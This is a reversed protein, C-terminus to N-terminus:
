KTYKELLETSTSTETINKTEIYSVINKNIQLARGNKNNTAVVFLFQNDEGILFIKEHNFVLTSDNAIIKVLRPEGGGIVFSIKPFITAGFIFLSALLPIVLQQAVIQLNGYNSIHEIFKLKLQEAPLETNNLFIYITFISSFLWSFLLGENIPQFYSFSQFDFLEIRLKLFSCIATSIYLCIILIDLSFIFFSFYNNYTKDKEKETILIALQSVDTKDIDKKIECKRRLSIIWSNITTLCAIAIIFLFLYSFSYLWFKLIFNAGLSINIPIQLIKEGIFDYNGFLPKFILIQNNLPTTYLGIKMLQSLALDAILLYILIQLHNLFRKKWSKIEFLKDIPIHAYMLWSLFMAVTLSLLPYIGAIIYRTNILDFSVIGFRSLYANICIFGFFYLIASPIILIKSVEKLKDFM